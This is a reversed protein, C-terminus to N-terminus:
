ARSRASVTSVISTDLLMLFCVLSVAFLVIFLAFGEIYVEADSSKTQSLKLEDPPDADTNVSSPRSSNKEIEPTASSPQAEARRTINRIKDM